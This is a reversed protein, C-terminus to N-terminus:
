YSQFAMERITLFRYGESKFHHIIARLNRVATAGTNFKCDLRVPLKRMDIFEWPHVFLVPQNMRGLVPLTLCLPLRIFSSTISVPVRRITKATFPGRYFPFKYTAISSDVRFGEEGLLLLYESPLKLNPARFSEVDGEFEDLVEKARVIVNRAEPLALHDFREHAYGHCGLEHGEELVTEIIQPFLEASIGTAFFTARVKEDKFIELLRPMGEELGYTSNLMPPCDHEVDVTISIRRM